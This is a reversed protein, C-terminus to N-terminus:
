FVTLGLSLPAGDIIAGLSSTRGRSEISTIRLQIQDGAPDDNDAVIYYIESQQDVLRFGSGTIKDGGSGGVPSTISRSVTRRDSAREIRLNHYGSTISSIDSNDSNIVTVGTIDIDEASSAVIKFAGLVANDGEYNAAPLDVSSVTLRSAKFIVTPTVASELSVDVLAGSTAGVATISDIRYAVEAMDAATTTDVTLDFRVESGTRITYNFPFRFSEGTPTAIKVGRLTLNSFGDSFQTKSTAAPKLVIQTITVNEGASPKILFKGLTVRSRGAVTGTPEFRSDYRVLLTVEQVSRVAGSVTGNFFVDDGNSVADFEANSLVIQYTDGIRISDAVDAVVELTATKSATLKPYDLGVTNVVNNVSAASVVGFTDGGKWRLRVDGTLPLAGTSSIIKVGVRRWYLDQGSPRIDFTALVQADGGRALSGSPSSSSLALSVSGPTVDIINQRGVPFAGSGSEPLIAYNNNMGVARIDYAHEISILGVRDTGGLVDARIKIYKSESRPIVFSSNIDFAVYPGKIIPNSSIVKNKDDILEFNSFDTVKLSGTLTIIVRYIAVDETGSVEQLKFSNLITDKEGIVLNPNSSFTDDISVRLAGILSSAPVVKHQPSILPFEGTVTSATSIDSASNLVFSIPPQGGATLQRNFAAVVTIIRTQKPQVVLPEAFVYNLVGQNPTKPEALLFGEDDVVAVSSFDEDLLLGQKRLTIGTITTPKTDSTLTIRQLVNHSTGSAFLAPTMFRQGVTLNGSVVDTSPEPEEQPANSPDFSTSVQYANLLAKPVTVIKSWSFGAAIFDSESEIPLKTLNDYNLFYVKPDGEIKVLRANDYQLSDTGSVNIIDNWNNGSDIFSAENPFWIKQGTTLDLLYVRPGLASKILLVERLKDFEAKSVTQVTQNFAYSRLIEVNRIHHKFDGLVAYLRNDGDVKVLRVRSDFLSAAHGSIPLWIGITLLLTLFLKKM